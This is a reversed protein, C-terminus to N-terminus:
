ARSHAASAARRACDACECLRRLLAFTYIGTSHGDSWHIQLAYRGVQEIATPRVASDVEELTLKREGTHEDVCGACSCHYRLRRFDHAGQHGDDWTILLQEGAAEIAAPFGTRAAEHELISLAAAVREALAAFARASAGDNRSTVLPTGQDCLASLEPELPIEGLLPVDWEQHPRRGGAPRFVDHKEGCKGCTFYAMNEVVGLVPVHVEGFMRLGKRSVEAAIEQPTTVIVAGSINATQTLTLQVDGTGPPLDIVLYDLEGWAVQTLFQAVLSSAMPGRWIVPADKTVLMGMSVFKLGHAEFPLLRRDPTTRPEGSGGLLRAVSPGYIDADLLGVAAGSQALAVALNVAVTSKGVGGKGSAVAVVQKVGPLVRSPQGATAGARVAATMQVNVASVGPLAEIAEVCQRRLMEKVPCAPTTLEIVVSVTGGEITVQKVFGLSVIDRQLDPDQVRSLARLVDQKNVM